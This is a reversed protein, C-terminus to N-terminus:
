AIHVETWKSPFIKRTMRGDLGKTLVEHPSAVVSGNMIGRIVDDFHYLYKQSPIHYFFATSTNLKYMVWQVALWAFNYPEYPNLGDAVMEDIMQDHRIGALEPM